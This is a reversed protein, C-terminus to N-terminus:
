RSGNSDAWVPTPFILSTSNENHTLITKNLINCDMIQPKISKVIIDAYQRLGYKSKREMNQFYQTEAKLFDELGWLVEGMTFLRPQAHTVYDQYT